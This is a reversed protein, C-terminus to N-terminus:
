STSATSRTWSRSRRRSIKSRGTALRPFGRRGGVRGEDVGQVGELRAGDAGPGFVLAGSARLRDALGDVLPAEPGIVFLDADIEEPSADLSGPIAPNGPSVVVEDTRALVNALAHEGGGTGVVCVKM